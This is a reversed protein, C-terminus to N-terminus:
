VHTSPIGETVHAPLKPMVTNGCKSLPQAVCFKQFVGRSGIIFFM